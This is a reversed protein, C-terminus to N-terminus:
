IAKIRRRMINAVDDVYERKSIDGPSVLYEDGDNKLPKMNEDYLQIYVNVAGIVLNNERVFWALHEAIREPTFGKEYKIRM